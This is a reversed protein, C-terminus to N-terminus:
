KNYIVVDKYGYFVRLSDKVHTTDLMRCNVSMLISYNISDKTIMELSPNGGIKLQRYRKDAASKNTYYGIVIKM